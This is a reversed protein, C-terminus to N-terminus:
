QAFLAAFGSHVGDGPPLHLAKAMEDYTQSKAGSATMALAASISFPSIFVNDPQAKLKGYLDLGFATNGAVVPASDAAPSAFCAFAVTAALVFALVRHM